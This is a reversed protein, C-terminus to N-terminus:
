GRQPERWGPRWSGAAALGVAAELAHGVSILAAESGPPGVISLGVPLGAVLGMPVTLIPWGLIAPPTSVIGGGALVDGHTLDSKWAPRYAPAVLVDVGTALAPRLCVDRAWEVNRRRAAAYTSAAMGGSAAARELYEHGFAALEAEAHAENFAIVDAMSRVGKGGRTPLYGDLGDVFEGLLVTVQDDHVDFGPAAAAVDRLSAVLPELSEIARAFVADTAADGTLWQTAVGVRVERAADLDCAIALDGTGALVELLLAADRVSRAVPGVADQSSSLPVVGLTPVLGVTPKLGVVGSLAAPNTISGNTETGVAVPVLGAAVAAGSGSSSGGASRDLAWPNGTLGGVASWGSASHPSRFNAWESMNASGLIVAGAARLRSAVASDRAVPRGALALSGATAPLGVAEINDKVLVPIGHLPGRALGGARERDRQGAEAVADTALALVARLETRTGPEDIARVRDILAGVLHTSTIRGAAQGTILDGLTAYALDATQPHPDRDAM